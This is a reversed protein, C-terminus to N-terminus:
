LNWPRGVFVVPVSYELHFHVFLVSIIVFSRSYVPRVLFRAGADAQTRIQRGSQEQEAVAVGLDVWSTNRLPVFEPKRDISPGVLLEGDHKQGRFPINMEKRSIQGSYSLKRHSNENASYHCDSFLLVLSNDSPLPCHLEGACRGIAIRFTVSM